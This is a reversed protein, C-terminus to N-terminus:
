AMIHQKMLQIYIHSIRVIQQTTNSELVKWLWFLFSRAHIQLFVTKVSCSIMIIIINHAISTM